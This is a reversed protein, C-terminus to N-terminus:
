QNTPPVSLATNAAASFAPVSSLRGDFWAGFKAGTISGVSRVPMSASSVAAQTQSSVSSAFAQGFPAQRLPHQAAKQDFAEVPDAGDGKREAAREGPDLPTQIQEADQDEGEHGRDCPADRASQHDASNRRFGDRAPMGQRDRHGGAQKSKRTVAPKELDPRRCQDKVGCAEADEGDGPRRLGEVM